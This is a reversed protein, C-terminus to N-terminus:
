PKRSRAEIYVIIVIAALVNQLWTPMGDVPPIDELLAV